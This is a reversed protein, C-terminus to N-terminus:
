KEEKVFEPWVPPDFETFYETNNKNGIAIEQFILNFSYQPYDKVIKEAERQSIKTGSLTVEKLKSFQNASLIDRIIIEDWNNGAFILNELIEKKDSNLLMNYHALNGLKYNTFTSSLKSNAYKAIIKSYIKEKKQESTNNEFNPYFNYFVKLRHFREIDNMLYISAYTITKNRLELHELKEFFKADWNVHNAKSFKKLLSPSVSTYSKSGFPSTIKLGCDNLKLVKLNSASELPL